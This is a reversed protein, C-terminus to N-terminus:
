AGDHGYSEITKKQEQILADIQLWDIGKSKQNRLMTLLADVSGVCSELVQAEHRVSEIQSILEDVKNKQEERVKDMKQYVLQKERAVRARKREEEKSSYYRDVAASFSPFSLWVTSSPSASTSTSSSSSTNITAEAARVAAATLEHEAAADWPFLSLSSTDPTATSASTSTTSTNANKPIDLQALPYAYFDSLEIVEKKKDAGEGDAEEDDDDDASIDAKLLGVAGGARVSTVIALADTIGTIVSAIYSTSTSTTNTDSTSDTNIMDLVAGCEKDPVCSVAMAHQALVPGLVSESLTSLVTSKAAARKRRKSAAKNNALADTNTAAAALDAARQADRTLRSQLLDQLWQSDVSEPLSAGTVQYVARMAAMQALTADGDDANSAGLLGQSYYQQRLLALTNLTNDTLIVNGTGYVEVFLSYSNEGYGFNLRVVRDFGVQEISHLRKSKIHKRLKMVFGNPMAETDREFDSIHIRLGSEIVVFVKKDRGAFKLIFSRKSISYLNALKLGVISANMDHVSAALDLASMRKVSGSM